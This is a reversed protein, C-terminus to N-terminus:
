LEPNEALYRQALRGWLNVTGTMGAIVLPKWWAVNLVVSAIPSSLAGAVFTVGSRIVIDKISKKRAIM